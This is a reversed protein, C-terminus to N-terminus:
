VPPTRWLTHRKSCTKPVTTPGIYRRDVPRQHGDLLGVLLSIQFDLHPLPIEAVMNYLINANVISEDLLHFYKRGGCTCGIHIDMIYYLQVQQSSM